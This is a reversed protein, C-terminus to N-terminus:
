RVYRYRINRLNPQCIKPAPPEEYEPNLYFGAIAAFLLAGSAVLLLLDAIVIRRSGM